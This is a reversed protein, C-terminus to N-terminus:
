ALIAIVKEAEELAKTLMVPLNNISDEYDCLNRWQRLDELKDAVGRQRRTQFHRRLLSHDDGNYRLVLGHRDRAYNRAHGFAAYYARSVACRFMAEQSTNLNSQTHLSQALSLYDAWNFAM